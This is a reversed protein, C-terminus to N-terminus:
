TMPILSANLIRCGSPSRATSNTTTVLFFGDSGARVWVTSLETVGLEPPIATWFPAVRWRLGRDEGGPAPHHRERILDPHISRIASSMLVAYVGILAWFWPLDIRGASIFLIAALSLELIVLRIFPRMTYSTQSAPQVPFIGDQHNSRVEEM